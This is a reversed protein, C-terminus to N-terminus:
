YKQMQMIKRFSMIYANAHNQTFPTLAHLIESVSAGHRHELPGSGSATRSAKKRERNLAARKISFTAVTTTTHATQPPPQPQSIELFNEDHWCEELKIAHKAVVHM